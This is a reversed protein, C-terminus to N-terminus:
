RWTALPLIQWLAYAVPGAFLVSDFLDLLGGFGPMFRASDKAGADRKILSEALDGVLGTVGIVAGFLASWYWACAHWNSNFRPTALELWLVAALMAGLVAGLAGMWTKGPSLNPCMKRKGFLRGLAYAGIDGCKVTVILSGLLLYGADAGALWRLQATVCLLLGVYGVILLEAALTQLNAKNDSYRVVSRLFLFLLCLAFAVAVPGLAFVANPLADPELVIPVYWGAAVVTLTCCATSVFGPDLSRNRVLLTFEWVSRVALVACLLFLLPAQPGAKHDLVFVGILAPILVASIVLRWALM